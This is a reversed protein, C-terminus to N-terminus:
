GLWINLGIGILVLGGLIEAPKQLYPKAGLREGLYVGLATMAAAFVGILVVPWLISSGSVGLAIGVALADMSVALSLMILSFGRSPDCKDAEEPPSFAEKLMKLGIFALLAFSLPGEYGHLFSKVAEGAFWGCLTMLSQFLGFHFFLRFARGFPEHPRCAGLAASVAFADAGLAASLGLLAALTM